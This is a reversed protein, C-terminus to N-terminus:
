TLLQTATAYSHVQVQHDHVYRPVSAGTIAVAPQRRREDKERLSRGRVDEEGESGRHGCKKIATSRSAKTTRAYFDALSEM